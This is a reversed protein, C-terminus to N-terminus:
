VAEKKYVHQMTSSPMFDRVSNWPNNVHPFMLVEPACVEKPIWASDVALSASRHWGCGCDNWTQWKTDSPPRACIVIQFSWSAEIEAATILIPHAITQMDTFNSLNQSNGLWKSATLSPHARAQGDLWYSPWLLALERNALNEDKRRSSTSGTGGVCRCWRFRGWVPILMIWQCISKLPPAWVLDGHTTFPAACCNFSDRPYTAFVRQQFLCLAFCTTFGFVCRPVGVNKNSRVQLLLPLTDSKTSRQPILSIWVILSFLVTSDFSWIKPTCTLRYWDAFRGGAKQSRRAAELACEDNPDTLLRPADTIRSWVPPCSEDGCLCVVVLLLYSRRAIGGGHPQNWSTELM